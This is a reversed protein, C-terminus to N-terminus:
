TQQMGGKSGMHQGEAWEASGPGQATPLTCLTGHGPAPGMWSATCVPHSQQATSLLQGADRCQLVTRDQTTPPQGAPTSPTVQGKGKPRTVEDGQLM